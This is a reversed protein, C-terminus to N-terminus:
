SSQAITARSNASGAPRIPSVACMADLGALGHRRRCWRCRRALRDRTTIRLRREVPCDCPWSWLQQRGDPAGRAPVVGAVLLRLRRRRHRARPRRHRRLARHVRRDARHEVYNTAHGIFGPILVQDDPLEVDEWIRVRAPPAPQRGRVLVGRRQDAAHVARGHCRSTTSARATTSATAPTTGSRTPRSTACPTTSPKSTSTPPAVNRQDMSPRTGSLFEILWPDDVQLLFGADVIGLYEERMAEAVAALYEDHIPLVRQARLREPGSSPM